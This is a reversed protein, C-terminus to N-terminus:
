SCLPNVWFVRSDDSFVLQQPCCSSNLCRGLLQLLQLRPSFGLYHHQARASGQAWGTQAKALHSPDHTPLEMQCGNGRGMSRSGGVDGAPGEEPM